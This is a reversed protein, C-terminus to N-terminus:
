SKIINRNLLYDKVESITKKATRGVGILTASAFGTWNGYGVMWLGNCLNAKTGTVPVKNNIMAGLQETLSLDPKFGTCWIVADFSEEIGGPWIVGTRTFSIMPRRIDYLKNQLASRVEDVQVIDGLNNTSPSLNTKSERYRSTAYDFLDKGNIESPLFRPQHLTVWVVKTYKLLEAAIQAGSNGGGIVLVKKDIFETYSHYEGSHILIGEFLDSAPEEPIFKNKWTGTAMILSHTKLLENQTQIKFINKEKTVTIAKCPRLINLKYRKEYQELYNLVHYKDPFYDASKPMQWGPLSSHESPSFLNLTEWTHNWSGGPQQNEDIILYDIGTKNLYYGLALGSQGGGIVICDYINGTENLEKFWGCEWFVL